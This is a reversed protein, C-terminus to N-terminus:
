PEQDRWTRLKAPTKLAISQSKLCTSQLCKLSSKKREVPDTVLVRSIKWGFGHLQGEEATKEEEMRNTVRHPM